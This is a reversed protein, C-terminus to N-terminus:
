HSPELLADIEKERHHNSPAWLLRSQKYNSASPKTLDPANGATLSGRNTCAASAWERGVACLFTKSWLAPWCAQLLCDSHIFHYFICVFVAANKAHLYTKAYTQHNFINKKKLRKKKRKPLSIYSHTHLTMGTTNLHKHLFIHSRAYKLNSPDVKVTLVWFRLKFLPKFFTLQDTIQRSM